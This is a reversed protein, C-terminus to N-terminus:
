RELLETSIEYSKNHFRRRARCGRYPRSPGSGTSKRRAEPNGSTNKGSSGSSEMSCTPPGNPGPLHGKCGSGFNFLPPPVNRCRQAHAISSLHRATIGMSLVYRGLVKSNDGTHHRSMFFHVGAPVRESEEFVAPPDGDMGGGRRLLRLRGGTWSWAKQSGVGESDPHEVGLGGKGQLCAGQSDKTECVGGGGRCATDSGRGLGGTSTPTTGCQSAM